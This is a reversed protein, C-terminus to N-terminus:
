TTWVDRIDGDDYDSIDIGNVLDQKASINRLMDTLTQPKRVAIATEDDIIKDAKLALEVNCNQIFYYLCDILHDHNRPYEGNEDKVYNSMEWLFNECEDSVFFKNKAMMLSDLISEGPKGDEEAQSARARQKHTPILGAFDPDNSFLNVVENYFWTAAEDYYNAWELPDGNWFTQTSTAKKWIARATMEQRNKAYIEDLIYVQGTYPNYACFLVAFVTATGPDFVAFYQIKRGDRLLREKILDKPRSHEEPNFFPLIASETDFVLKGEYERLWVNYKKKEILEEKKAALWVKDLKPNAESPLEVYFRSTDGRLIKDKHYKWFDVYYCTRKPPTGMVILSVSGSALNPQMVEEDFYKTHHQFEDYIVLDPKIGRLSDYNECGDIIIYSGNKFVLRLESERAEFVFQQPGYNQLRKPIWYIKKGQKITPCIIYIESNPHTLAYRWTIYLIEETKGHSRGCQGQIIKKKEKFFASIIPFQGQHPFRGALRLHEHLSTITQHYQSLQLNSEM